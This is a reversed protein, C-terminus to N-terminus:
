KQQSSNSIQSLMECPYIGLDNQSHSVCESMHNVAMGRRKAKVFRVSALAVKWINWIIM